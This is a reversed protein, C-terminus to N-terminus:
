IPVWSGPLGSDSSLDSTTSQRPQSNAALWLALFPALPGDKDNALAAELAPNSALALGCARHRQVQESLAIWTEANRWDKSDM